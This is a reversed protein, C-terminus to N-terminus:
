FFSLYFPFKKIRKKALSIIINKDKYAMETTTVYKKPIEM